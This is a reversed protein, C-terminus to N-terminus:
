TNEGLTSQSNEDSSRHSLSSQVQGGASLIKDRVSASVFVSEAITLAKSIDEPGLIKVFKDRGRILKKEKLSQLSVVSDAEYKKTILALSLVLPKQKFPYNSFGRRPLRRYLPMQGGEFGPRVKGGSRAKQGKTGRGATCGTGSGAGRGVRKRPTVTGPSLVVRTTKETSNESM